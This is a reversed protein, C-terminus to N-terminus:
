PLCRHSLDRRDDLIADEGVQPVSRGHLDHHVGGVPIGPELRGRGEGKATLMGTEGRVFLPCAVPAASCVPAGIARPLALQM